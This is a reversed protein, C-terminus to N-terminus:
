RRCAQPTMFAGYRVAKTDQTKPDLRKVLAAPLSFAGYRAASKDVTEARQPVVKQNSSKTNM